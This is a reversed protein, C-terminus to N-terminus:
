ADLGLERHVGGQDLTSMQQDFHLIVIERDVNEGVLWHENGHISGKALLQQWLDDQLSIEYGPGKVHIKPRINISITELMFCHRATYRVGAALDAAETITLYPFEEHRWCPAHRPHRSDIGRECFSLNMDGDAGCEDEWRPGAAFPIGVTKVKHLRPLSPSSQEGVLWRHDEEVFYVHNEDLRLERLTPSARQRIKYFDLDAFSFRKLVRPGEATESPKNKGTTDESPQYPSPSSIDWIALAEIPEDEGWASRNPQWIYLAYHTASHTSYFRDRSNLPMGLFHIRWENRFHTTWSGSEDQTLDYATAFHRFVTENENLQHYADKECWEVILVKEKLRIRRVIKGVPQFSIDGVVGSALDYLAYRQLKASPFILIGEDFTWLKDPYHFPATKDEFQLHRKWPAVPHYRAWEPRVFSQALSLKEISRPRGLKLFHYRAAIKALLCAWDADRESKISRIESARPYHLLLVHRALEAQTFAAHWQRSVRRGLILDRPSLQTVILLFIDNPLETIDKM